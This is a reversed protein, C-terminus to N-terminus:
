RIVEWGIIYAVLESWPCVGLIYKGTSIFYEQLIKNYTGRVLGEKPWIKVWDATHETPLPPPLHDMLM